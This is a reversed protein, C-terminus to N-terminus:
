VAIPLSHNEDIISHAISWANNAETIPKLSARFSALELQSLIEKSSNFLQSYSIDDDDLLKPDECFADLLGFLKDLLHFVYIPYKNQDYKFLTFFEKEFEKSSITKDIFKQILRIYNTLHRDM